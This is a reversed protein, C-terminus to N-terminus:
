GAWMRILDHISSSVADIESKEAGRRVLSQCAANLRAILERQAWDRVHSQLWLVSAIRVGRTVTEVRHLESTRYLLASGVPLKWQTTGSPGQVTLEGGDYSSPESLFITCSLDTRLASPLGLNLIAADTHFDFYMGPLYKSFV